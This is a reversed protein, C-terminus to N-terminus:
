DIRVGLRRLLEFGGCTEAVVRHLRTSEDIMVRPVRYLDDGRQHVGAHTTTASRFGAARAAEASRGDWDWARGFPYAFSAPPAGLAREISARSGEVEARQAEPELRSLIAHSVTHAGLELGGDRLARVDDWTMYLADALAREDGGLEAFLRDMAREREVPECEYKLVRKVHYVDAEGHPVLQNLLIGGQRDRSLETYRHVFDVPEVRELCWFLKHTWNVRREDLARTELYITASLGMRQLLPLLHTRNDRYGDDLSLAVASRRGEGREIRELAPGVPLVDYRRALWALIRELEREEIRM